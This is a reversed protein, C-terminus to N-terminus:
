EAVQELPELVQPSDNSPSNVWTSVRYASMEDAPYATLLSLLRAPDADQDL